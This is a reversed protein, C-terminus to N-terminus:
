ASWWWCAPRAAPRRTMPSRLLRPPSCPAACSHRRRRRQSRQPHPLSHPHYVRASRLRDADARHPLHPDREQLRPHRHDQRDGPLQVAHGATHYGCGAILMCFALLLALLCAAREDSFKGRPARLGDHERRMGGRDPGLHPSQRRCGVALRRQAARSRDQTALQIDAQGAASVNSPPDEEPGPITVHDGALAQSLAPLDVASEM